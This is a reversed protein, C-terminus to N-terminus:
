GQQQSPNSDRAEAHISRLALECSDLLNLLVNLEPLYLQQQEPISDQVTQCMTAIRSEVGSLDVEHGKKIEVEAMIFFHSLENLEALTEQLKQATM